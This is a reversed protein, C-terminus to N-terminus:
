TYFEIYAGLEKMVDFFQPFSKEVAEVDSIVGLIESHKNGLTMFLLAIVSSIVIRHDNYGDIYIGTRSVLYESDEKCTDCDNYILIKESESFPNKIDVSIGLMSLMDCSAKVRDSEKGRAKAVGSFIAKRKKIAVYACALPLLDICNTFDFVLINDQNGLLELVKYDAQIIDSKAISLKDVSTLSKRFDIEAGLAAMVEFYARISWDEYKISNQAVKKEVDVLNTDTKKVVFVSRNNKDTNQIVSFGYDSLAEITLNIYPVSPIKGDVIIRGKGTIANAILLGSIYQSSDVDKLLFDKMQFKNKVTIEIGCDGLDKQSVSSGCSEILGILKDMPRKSLQKSIRFIAKAKISMVIPVLMRFTTASDMCDIYPIDDSLNKLADRTAQLDYCYAYFFEDIKETKDFFQKKSLGFFYELMMYRHVYSKAYPINVTGSLVSKRVIAKM